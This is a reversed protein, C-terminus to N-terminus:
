IEELQLEVNLPNRHFEAQAVALAMKDADAEEIINSFYSRNLAELKQKLLKLKRVVKFMTCGEVNQGWGEKVIDIFNPHSAWVNCFKFAAKVRRPSNASSLKLPWHDSIREEPYYAMYVPM